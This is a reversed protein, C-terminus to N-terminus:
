SPLGRTGSALERWMLMSRLYYHLGLEWTFGMGGHVQIAGQAVQVAANLAYRSAREANAPEHAAWVVAADAYEAQAHMDALRHKVAQFSGIPKGFQTRERAFAVSANVLWQAGGVAQAAWLVALEQAAEAPIDSIWPVVATRLVPSLDDVQPSSLAEFRDDARGVGRALVVGEEAGYPAIGTPTSTTPRAVSVTVPGDVERAAPSWRKAWITEMIPLPLASHGSVRAVEVLDRLTAGAGDAEEPVGILDWGGAAVVSWAVPTQQGYEAVPTSGVARDTIDRLAAAAVAGIESEMLTGTM